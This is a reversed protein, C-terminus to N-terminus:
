RRYKKNLKGMSRNKIGHKGYTRKQKGATALLAAAATGAILLVCPIMGGLDGDFLLLNVVGLILVLGGEAMATRRIRGEGRGAALATMGSAAILIGAAALDMRSIDLIENQIMWAFLGTLCLLMLLGLVSAFMARKIDMGM